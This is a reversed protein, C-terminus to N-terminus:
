QTQVTFDKPGMAQNTEALIPYQVGNWGSASFSLSEREFSFFFGPTLRGMM